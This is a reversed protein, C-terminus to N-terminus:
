KKRKLSARHLIEYGLANATVDEIIEIEDGILPSEQIYKSMLLSGGGIFFAPSVRLDIGRERILNIIKELHAEAERHILEAIEPYKRTIINDEGSLVEVLLDEHTSLGDPMLAISEQLSTFLPIIGEELSLLYELTLVGNKLQIIDVTFGGIDIAYARSSSKLESNRIAVASFSQIYIGISDIKITVDEGEYKFNVIKGYKMFYDHYKDKLTTYHAVPLGIALDIDILGTGLLRETKAEKAIGFLSLVFMTENETKDKIYASRDSSLSYYSGGFEIVDKMSPPRTSMKRLGSPFKHHHTKTFSNGNDIGLLM